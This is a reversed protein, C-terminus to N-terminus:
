FCGNCFGCNGGCGSFSENDLINATSENIIVNIKELLADFNCRASDYDQMVPTNHIEEYVKRLDRGLIKIKKSDPDDQSMSINLEERIEDFKENLKKLNPDLNLANKTKQMELFENSQKILLAFKKAEKLIM